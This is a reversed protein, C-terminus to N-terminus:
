AFEEEDEMEGDCLEPFVHALHERVREDEALYFVWEGMGVRYEKTVYEFGGYYRLSGDCDAVVALCEPTVYIGGWAARQDLGLESASVERAESLFAEVAKAVAWHLDEFGM